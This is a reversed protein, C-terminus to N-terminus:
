GALGPGSALVDFTELVVPTAAPDFVEGRGACLEGLYDLHATRWADYSGDGEALAFAEDGDDLVGVRVHTTRLVHVPAGDGDVLVWRDGVEPVHGRGALYSTVLDCTTRKGRTRVWAAIETAYAATVAFRDVVWPGDPDGSADLYARWLRGAAALDTPAAADDPPADAPSM